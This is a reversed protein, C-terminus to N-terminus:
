KKGPLVKIVKASFNLKASLKTRHASHVNLQKAFAIITLAPLSSAMSSTQTTTRSCVSLSIHSLLRCFFLAPIFHASNPFFICSQFEYAACVRVCLCARLYRCSKYVSWLLCCCCQCCCCYCCCSILRLYCVFLQLWIQLCVTFVNENRPRAVSSHKIHCASFYAVSKNVGRKCEFEMYLSADCENFICGM